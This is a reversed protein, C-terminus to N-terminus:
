FKRRLEFRVGSLDRAGARDAVIADARFIWARDLNLQYRLGLALERGPVGRNAADGHPRVMAIEAVVQQSLDFLYQIGLAGGYTNNATDNLKPFGTLGDTEFNIGTNKLIGGADVARAVSQPRDNGYFLNLYPVLTLPKHTVLSNEILLLSGNANRRLGGTPRQGFNTILRVSNSLWGGYRRTFAIAANNYGQNAFDDKPKVRALGLEWYGENAEIFATAGFLRNAKTALGSRDVIGPTDVNDVGAFFTVDMNSIDLLPSNRAPITFAFGGFADELWVGNQFLLPIKGFTFPLDFSQYRDTWGSVLAGLDGEFFLAEAKADLRSECHGGGNERVCGTFRGDHDLPRFFAHVRETGTIKWDVDLNLRTALVSQRTAGNNNRAIATRWDGYVSFAHDTPNKRGLGTGPASLPGSDYIPRGLELLPRPNRVASKGGYIRLQDEVNYPKQEYSPDPGFSEPKHPVVVADPAMQRPGGKDDALAPAQAAALALAIAAAAPRARDQMLTLANM